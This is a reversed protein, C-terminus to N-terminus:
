CENIDDKMEIFKRIGMRWKWFDFHIDWYVAPSWYGGLSFSRTFDYTYFYFRM